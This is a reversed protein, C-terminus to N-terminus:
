YWRGIATYGYRGSRNNSFSVIQLSGTSTTTVGDFQQICAFVGEQANPRYGIATLRPVQSFSSPFTFDKSNSGGTRFVNGVSVTATVNSTDLFTCIMTGDAYKVFEGNANSGREIIAGTPVGGSQSVTGLINSQKFAKDTATESVLDGTVAPITVTFNSATDEPEITVVGDLPAKLEIKGAM